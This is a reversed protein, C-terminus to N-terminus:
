CSSRTPARARASRLSRTRRWEPFNFCGGSNSDDSARSRTAAGRASRRRNLSMDGSVTNFIRCVYIKNFHEQFHEWAMWFTGDNAFTVNLAQM